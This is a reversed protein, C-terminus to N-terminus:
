KEKIYRLAYEQRECIDKWKWKDQKSMKEIQKDFKKRLGLKEVEMYIAYLTDEQQRTM